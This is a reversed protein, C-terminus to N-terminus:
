WISYFPPFYLKGHQVKVKALYIVNLWHKHGNGQASLEPIHKKLLGFAATQATSTAPIADRQNAYVTPVEAAHGWQRVVATGKFYDRLIRAKPPSTAQLCAWPQRLPKAFTNRLGQEKSSAKEQEIRDTSWKTQWQAPFSLPISKLDACSASTWHQEVLHGTPACRHAARCAAGCVISVSSNVRSFGGQFFEVSIKHFGNHKVWM